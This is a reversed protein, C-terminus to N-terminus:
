ARLYLDYGKKAKILRVKYGRSRALKAAVNAKQKTLGIRTRAFRKGAFYRIGGAEKVM